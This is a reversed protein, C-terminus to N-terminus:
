FLTCNKVRGIAGGSTVVKLRPHFINTGTVRFNVACSGIARLGDVSRLDVKYVFTHVGPTLQITLPDFDENMQMSQQYEGDIYFEMKSSRARLTGFDANDLMYDQVTFTVEYYQPPPPKPREASVRNFTGQLCKPSSQGPSRKALNMRNGENTFSVYYYCRIDSQYIIVYNAANAVTQGLRGQGLRSDQVDGNSKITINEGSADHNWTGAIPDEQAFAQWSCALVILGLWLYFRSALYM